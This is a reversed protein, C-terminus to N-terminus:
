DQIVAFGALGMRNRVRGIATGGQPDYPSPHIHERGVWDGVLMELRAHEARPQPMVM